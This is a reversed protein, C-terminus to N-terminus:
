KSEKTDDDRHHDVFDYTRNDLIAEIESLTFPRREPHCDIGVDMRTSEPATLNGHSHGHLHYAGHHANQWTLLPYHCMIYSRGNFKRRVIDHVSSWGLETVWKPDHNGRVMHKIGHLKHFFERAREQSCQGMRFDGLFWVEDRPKINANWTDMLWEDHTAVDDFGRLKSMFDHGIHLDATFHTESV